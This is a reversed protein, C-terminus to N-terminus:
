VALSALVSGSFPMEELPSIACAEKVRRGRGPGGHGAADAQTTHSRTAAHNPTPMKEKATEELRCSSCLSADCRAKSLSAASHRRGGAPPAADGPM